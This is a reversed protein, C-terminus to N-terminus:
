FRLTALVPRHDSGTRPLVDADVATVGRTLVQDIRAMPLAAPWTFGFGHGAKAQASDLLSLLRHARRDTAATNLDGVLVVQRARDAAVADTLARMARDRMGGFGRHDLDPSVLHVNYLAIEGHPTALTMRVALLYGTGTDVEEVNRIPYRSWVGFTQQMTTYAYARDLPPEFRRVWEPRLEQVAVVDARTDVLAAATADLRRNHEWVNHTLVRLTIAGAPGADAAPGRWPVLLGGFLVVWTLAAVAVAAGAVRSRLALAAVALVPVVVGVWPLVTELLSAAGMVNPLWRHGLLVLACGLACATVLWRLVRM